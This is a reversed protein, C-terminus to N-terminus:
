PPLEDMLYLKILISLDMNILLYEGWSEEVKYDISQVNCINLNPPQQAIWNNAKVMNSGLTEFSGPTFMKHATIQAPVFDATGSFSLFCDFFKGFNWNLNPDYM